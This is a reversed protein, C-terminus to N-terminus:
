RPHETPRRTELYSWAILNSIPLSLIPGKRALAFDAILEDLARHLEIHRARHKEKSLHKTASM